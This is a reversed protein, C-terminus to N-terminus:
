QPNGSSSAPTAASQPVGDPAATAAAPDAATTAPSAKQLYPEFYMEPTLTGFTKVPTMVAQGAAVTVDYAQSESAPGALVVHYTGTPLTLSLPTAAPTPIAIKQGNAAEIASISAWPVADIVLIGKAVTPTPRTFMVFAAIGIVLVVAVVGGILGTTRASRPQAIVAGARAAVQAVQAAASRGAQSLREGAGPGAPPKAAPVSKRVSSATKGAQPAKTQISPKRGQVAPKATSASDRRRADVPVSPADMPAQRATSPRPVPTRTRPAPTQRAPVILTPESVPVAPRTHLLDGDRLASSGYASEAWRADGDLSEDVPSGDKSDDPVDRSSIVTPEFEELSEASDQSLAAEIAAELELAGVHNEDLTLAQQCKEHAGDLDGRDLLARGAQLAAEIQAARRRALADRDTRPRDPPPTLQAVGVSHGAPRKESGTRRTSGGGGPSSSVPRAPMTPMTWDQDSEFQRRVRAIAMRMTEADQYREGPDKNLAREVIPALETGADPVYRTIPPPEESLIKHTIAPLTEGPFAETYSLLEFFVAGISFLDARQDVPTGLIQEPAMYGPTGSFMGTTKSAVALVRAIGFDLIRLRGSRDLILNAPKIDRHVVSRQHAFGAGACLEEIWRLKDVLPIPSKQRIVEALTDGPVYEMVIYPQGRFEGYDYVAVINPHALSAASRAERAFRERADPIDLDSNFVKIGVLRGLVPDHAVYVTGM